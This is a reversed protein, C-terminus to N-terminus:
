KLKHLFGTSSVVACSMNGMNKCRKQYKFIGTGNSEMERFALFVILTEAICYLNFNCIVERMQIYIFTFGIGIRVTHHIVNQFPKPAIGWGM